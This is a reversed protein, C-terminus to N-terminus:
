PIQVVNLHRPIYQYTVKGFYRELLRVRQFTQILLLNQITYVWNLQQVVLESDLYVRIERVDNALSDELLGIVAHYEVLNNTSPGLCAGGSSLMDSTPSYLVWYASVLNLMYRNAGDAFGTFTTMQGNSMPCVYTPNTFFM